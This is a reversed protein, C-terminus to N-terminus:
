KSFPQKITSQGATMSIFCSKLCVNECHGPIHCFFVFRVRHVDAGQVTLRAATQVVATVRDSFICRMLLDCIDAQRIHM